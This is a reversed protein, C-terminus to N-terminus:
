GSARSCLVDQLEADVADAPTATTMHEQTHLKLCLLDMKLDTTCTVDATSDTHNSASAAQDSETVIEAATCSKDARSARINM